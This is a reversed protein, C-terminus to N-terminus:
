SGLRTCIWGPRITAQQLLTEPGVQYYEIWVLDCVLRGVLRGVLEWPADAVHGHIAPQHDPSVSVGSGTRARDQAALSREELRAHNPRM